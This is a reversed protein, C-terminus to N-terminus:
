RVPAIGISCFSISARVLFVAALALSTSNSASARLYSFALILAIIGLYLATLLAIMLFFVAMLFALFTASLFNAFFSGTAAAQWAVM